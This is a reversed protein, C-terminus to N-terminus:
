EDQDYDQYIVDMMKRRPYEFGLQQARLLKDARRGMHKWKKAHKDLRSSGQGKGNKIYKMFRRYARNREITM